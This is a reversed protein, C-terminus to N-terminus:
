IYRCIHSLGVHSGPQYYTKWTSGAVVISIDSWDCADKLDLMWLTGSMSCRCLRM